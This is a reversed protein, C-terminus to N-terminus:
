AASTLILDGWLQYERDIRDYAAAVGVNILASDAPLRITAVCITVAMRAIIDTKGVCQVHALHDLHSQSCQLLPTSRRNTSAV